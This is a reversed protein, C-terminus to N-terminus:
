NRKNNVLNNLIQKYHKEVTSMAVGSLEKIKRVTVKQNDNLLSKIAETIVEIKEDRVKINKNQGVGKNNQVVYVGKHQRDEIDEEKNHINIYTTCNDYPTTCFEKSSFQM